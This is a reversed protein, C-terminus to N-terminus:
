SQPQFQDAYSRNHDADLLTACWLPVCGMPNDMCSKSTELRPLWPYPSSLAAGQPCRYSSQVPMSVRPLPIQIEDYMLLFKAITLSSMAFSKLHSRSAGCIDNRQHNPARSQLANSRLIRQQDEMGQVRWAPMMIRMIPLIVAVDVLMDALQICDPAMNRLHKMEMKEVHLDHSSLHNGGKGFTFM